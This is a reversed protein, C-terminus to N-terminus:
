LYCLGVLQNYTIIICKTVRKTININDNVPIMLTTTFKAIVTPENSPHGVISNSLSLCNAYSTLRVDSGLGIATKKLLTLLKGRKRALRLAKVFVALKEEETLSEYACPIEEVPLDDLFPSFNYALATFKAHM